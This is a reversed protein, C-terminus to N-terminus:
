PSPFGTMKFASASNGTRGDIKFNNEGFDWRSSLFFSYQGSNIQLVKKKKAGKCGYFPIRCKCWLTTQKRQTKHFVFFGVVGGGLSLPSHHSSCLQSLDGLVEEDDYWAPIRLSIDPGTTSSLNPLVRSLRLDGTDLTFVCRREPVSTKGVSQRVSFWLSLFSTCVATNLGSLLGVASICVFWFSRAAFLHLLM